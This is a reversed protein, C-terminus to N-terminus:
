LGPYVSATRISIFGGMPCPHLPVTLNPLALARSPVPMEHPHPQPGPFVPNTQTGWLPPFGLCRGPPLMAATHGQAHHNKKLCNMLPPLFLTHMSGGVPLPGTGHLTSPVSVDEELLVSPERAAQLPSQLAEEM